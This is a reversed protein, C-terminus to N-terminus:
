KLFMIKYNFMFCCCCCVRWWIYQRGLGTNVLCLCWMPSEHSLVITVSGPCIRTASDRLRAHLKRHLRKAQVFPYSGAQGRYYHRCLGGPSRSALNKVNVELSLFWLSSHKLPQMLWIRRLFIFVPHSTLCFAYNLSNTSSINAILGTFAFPVSIYCLLLFNQFCSFGMPNLSTNTAWNHGVRHLRISQLGGPEEMWPIRWALIGCYTAM